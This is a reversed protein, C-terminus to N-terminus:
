QLNSAQSTHFSHTALHFSSLYSTRCINVNATPTPHFPIVVVTVKSRILCISNLHNALYCIIFDFFANNARLM